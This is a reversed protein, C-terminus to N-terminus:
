SRVAAPIAILAAQDGMGANRVATAVSHGRGLNAWTWTDLILDDRDTRFRSSIMGHERVDSSVELSKLSSANNAGVWRAPSPITQSTDEM